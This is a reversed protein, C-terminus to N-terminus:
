EWMLAGTVDHILALGSDGTVNIVHERGNMRRVTVEELGSETREYSIDKIDAGAQTEVLVKRLLEVILDKNERM